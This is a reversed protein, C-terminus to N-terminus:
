SLKFKLSKSPLKAHRLLKENKASLTAANYSITNSEEASHAKLQGNGGLKRASASKRSFFHCIAVATLRFKERQCMKLDRISKEASRLRSINENERLEYNTSGVNTGEGSMSVVAHFNMNRTYIIAYFGKNVARLIKELRWLNGRRGESQKASMEWGSVMHESRPFSDFRNNLQLCTFRRTFCKFLM